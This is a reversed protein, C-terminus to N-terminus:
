RERYSSVQERCRDLYGTRKDGKRGVNWVVSNLRSEPTQVFCSAARRGASGSAPHHESALVARAHVPEAPGDL